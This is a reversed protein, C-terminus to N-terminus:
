YAERRSGQMLDRIEQTVYGKVYTVAQGGPFTQSAINVTQRDRSKYAAMVIERCAQQHRPDVAAPGATYALRVNQYGRPFTGSRLAIKNQLAGAVYAGLTTLDQVEWDTATPGTFLEITTIATVPYQRTRIAPGGGGDYMENTYTASKLRHDALDELVLTAANVLSAVAEDETGQEAGAYVLADELTILASSSLPV